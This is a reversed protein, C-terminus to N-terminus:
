RLHREVAHQRSRKKIAVDKEFIALLSKLRKKARKAPKKLEVVVQRSIPTLTTRQNTQYMKKRIIALGIDTLM